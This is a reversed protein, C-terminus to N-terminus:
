KIKGNHIERLENLKVDLNTFFIEKGGGGGLLNSLPFGYNSTSQTNHCHCSLIGSLYAPYGGKDMMNM